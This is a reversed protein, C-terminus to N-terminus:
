WARPILFFSDNGQLSNFVFRVWKAVPNPDLHARICAVFGGLPRHFVVPGEITDAPLAYGAEELLARLDDEMHRCLLYEADAHRRRSGFLKLRYM